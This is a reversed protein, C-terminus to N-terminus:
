NKQSGTLLKSAYAVVVRNRGDAVQMLCAGVAHHSSDVYLKFQKKM